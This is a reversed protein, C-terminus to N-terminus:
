QRRAAHSERQVYVATQWEDATNRYDFFAGDSFPGLGGVTSALDVQLHEDEHVLVLRCMSESCDVSVVKTAGNLPAVADGIARAMEASQRADVAEEALRLEFTTVLEDASEEHSQESESRDSSQGAVEAAASSARSGEGATSSRASDVLQREVARVDRAQRSIQRALQAVELRTEALEEDCRRHADDSARPSGDVRSPRWSALACLLAGVILAAALWKPVM